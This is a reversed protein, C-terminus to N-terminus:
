QRPRLVRVSERLEHRHDGGPLVRNHSYVFFNGPNGRSAVFEGVQVIKARKWDVAIPPPSVGYEKVFDGITYGLYPWLFSGSIPVEDGEPNSMIHTRNYGSKHPDESLPPYDQRWDDEPHGDHDRDRVHIEFDVKGDNKLLSLPWAGSSSFSARVPGDVLIDLDFSTRGDNTWWGDRTTVSVTPHASELIRPLGDSSSSPLTDTATKITM